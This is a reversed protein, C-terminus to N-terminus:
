DHSGGQFGADHNVVRSEMFAVIDELRYFVRRGVKRYPPGKRMFRWNQLTRKSLGTIGAVASEDLYASAIM